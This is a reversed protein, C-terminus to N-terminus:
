YTPMAKVIPASSILYIQSSITGSVLVLQNPKCVLKAPFIMNPSSRGSVRDTAVLKLSYEGIFGFDNTAITIEFTVSDFTLFPTPGSLRTLTLDYDLTTPCQIPSGLYLPAPYVKPTSNSPNIVYVIETIV